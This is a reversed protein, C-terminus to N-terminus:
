KWGNWDIVADIESRSMDYLFFRSYFSKIEEALEARSFLEPYLKHLTWFVTLPQEVTRNGWVHAVTPLAYIANNRVATIGSLRADNKIETISAPDSVIMVDPNWKLLEEMTYVLTEQNRGNDTVSLGGAQAIWWEAIRHPQTFSPISGYLVKKKTQLGATKAATKAISNEFYAIYEAARDQKNLAEGMLTVAKKIDDLETWSLYMVAIGNKELLEVTAKTMTVCLDPNTSLVTEMQIEMNTEFLPAGKIQPAFVYQMKWNNNRTFNSPMENCISKGAGMLEVFANLVGVSGFTGIKGIQAPITVTREAMDTITRTGGSGQPSDQRKGAGFLGAASMMFLIAAAMVKTKM